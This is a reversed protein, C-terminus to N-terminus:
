GWSAGVMFMRRELGEEMTVRKKVTAAMPTQQSADTAKAWVVATPVIRPTTEFSTVRANMSPAVTVSSTAGARVVTVSLWPLKKM